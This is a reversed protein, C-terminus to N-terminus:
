LVFCLGLFQLVFLGLMSTSLVTRVNFYLVCDECQLVFCLALMSTSLVARVNFYLM